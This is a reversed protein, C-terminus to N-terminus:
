LWTNEDGSLVSGISSRVADEEDGENEEPPQVRRAKERTAKAEAETNTALLDDKSTKALLPKQSPRVASSSSSSSSTSTVRIRPFVSPLRLHHSYYHPPPLNESSSRRSSQRRQKTKSSSTFSPRLLSTGSKCCNYRSTQQSSSTPYM